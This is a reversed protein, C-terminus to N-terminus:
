GYCYGHRMVIFTARNGCYVQTLADSALMPLKGV